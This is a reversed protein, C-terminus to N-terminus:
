MMFTRQIRDVKRKKATIKSMDRTETTIALRAPGRPYIVNVKM